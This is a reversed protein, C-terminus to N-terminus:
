VQDVIEADANAHHWRLYVKRITLPIMAVTVLLLAYIIYVARSEEQDYDTIGRMSISSKDGNHHLGGDDSDSDDSSQEYTYLPTQSPSRNVIWQWVVVGVCMMMILVVMMEFLHSLSRTSLMRRWLFSFHYRVRLRYARHCSPCRPADNDDADHKSFERELCGHHVYNLEDNKKTCRCPVFLSDEIDNQRCLICTHYVVPKPSDLPLDDSEDFGTAQRGIKRIFRLM